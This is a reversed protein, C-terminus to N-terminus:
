NNAELNKIFDDVGGDAGCSFCHYKQSSPIVMFSETLEKHFPCLGMYFDNHFKNKKLLKLKVHAGIVEVIDKTTSNVTKTKKKFCLSVIWM